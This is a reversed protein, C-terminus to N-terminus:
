ERKEEVEEKEPTRERIWRERKMSECKQSEAKAINNKERM